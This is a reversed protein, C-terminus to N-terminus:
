KNSSALTKLYLDRDSLMELAKNLSRDNRLSYILEGKSLYYRKMIQRGLVNVIRNKHFDMDHDLDSKMQKELANFEKAALEWDSEAALINKLNGIAKESQRTYTFSKSKLFNKFENYINNTITFIRPPDVPHKAQWQVVFEFFLNETELQHLIAPTGKEEADFDPFVGGGGRVRRGKATYFFLDPSDPLDSISGANNHHAYDVAQICRGSPIYYKASTVKLQGKHPLKRSIQLLGKGFTRSGIVIARDWDQLSGALIEAASASQRNVLIALPIVTDIADQASRYTKNLKPDKGKETMLIRGRPIFCNLIELCDELSGGGNNRVDIILSAIGRNTKLDEFAAKLNQASHTTFKSLCIYGTNGPLVCYYTIPDITIRKRRITVKRPKKDGQRLFKITVKTNPKGSLLKRIYDATRGDIKEGNIETLIDGVQLGAAAAPMGDFPEAIFIQGKHSLIDAGIGTYEGTAALLFDPLEDEPIYETYPDLQKLMFAINDSIIEEVLISDVYSMSLEKLVASYVSMNKSIEFRNKESLQAPSFHHCVILVLCTLLLKRM